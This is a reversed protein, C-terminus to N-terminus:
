RAFFDGFYALTASITDLKWWTPHLFLDSYIHLLKNANINGHRCYTDENVKNEHLRLGKLKVPFYDLTRKFEFLNKVLTTCTCIFTSFLALRNTKCRVLEGYNKSQNDKFITATLRRLVRCNKTERELTKFTSLNM